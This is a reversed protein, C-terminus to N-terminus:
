WRFSIRCSNATNGCLVTNMGSLLAAPDAASARHSTAALKVMSAILAAPVGHGSVDAILIGAQRREAVLFDYFDGAVATMPVYRAAIRFSGSDPYASPLISM